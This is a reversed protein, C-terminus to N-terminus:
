CGDEVGAFVAYARVGHLGAIAHEAPIEPHARAAARQRSRLRRARAEARRLRRLAPRRAGARDRRSAAGLLRARGRRRGRAAAHPDIGRRRPRAGRRPVRVVHPDLRARRDRGRLLPPLGAAPRLQGDEQRAPPGASREYYRANQQADGTIMTIHHLGTFEMRLLTACTITQAVVHSSPPPLPPPPPPLPPPPPPPPLTTPPSPPPPPPLPPLPALVDLEHGNVRYHGPPMDIPIGVDYVDVQGPKLPWFAPLGACTPYDAVALRGTCDDVPM